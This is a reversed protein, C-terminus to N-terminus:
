SGAVWKINFCEVTYIIEVNFLAVALPVPSTGDASAVYIRMYDVNSPNTGFAATLGDEGGVSSMRYNWGSTIMSGKQPTLTKYKSGPRERITNADIDVSSDSGINLVGYYINSNAAGQTSLARVKFQAKIVKYNQYLLAIQDHYLPQHGGATFNPDFLSNCRYTFSAMPNVGDGLAHSDVYKLRVILKEPVGSRKPFTLANARFRKYSRRYAKKVTKTTPASGLLKKRVNMSIRKALETSVM